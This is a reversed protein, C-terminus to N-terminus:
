LPMKTFDFVPFLMRLFMVLPQTQDSGAIPNLPPRTHFSLIQQVSDSSRLPTTKQILLPHQRDECAAGYKTSKVGTPLMQHLPFWLKSMLALVSVSEDDDFSERGKAVSATKWDVTVVRCPFSKQVHFIKM